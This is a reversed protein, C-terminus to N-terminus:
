EVFIDIDCTFSTERGLLSLKATLIGSGKSFVYTPRLVYMAYHDGAGPEVYWTYGHTDGGFTLFAGTLLDLPPTTQKQWIAFVVVQLSNGAFFSYCGAKEGYIAREHPRGDDTKAFEYGLATSAQTPDITLTLTHEPIDAPAGPQKKLTAAKKAVLASINNM